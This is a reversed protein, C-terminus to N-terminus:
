AALGVVACCQEVDAAQIHCQLISSTLAASAAAAVWIDASHVVVAALM